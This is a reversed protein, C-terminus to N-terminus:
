YGSRRWYKAFVFVTMMAGPVVFWWKWNEAIGGAAVYGCVVLPTRGRLDHRGHINRDGVLLSRDAVFFAEMSRGARKTYFLGAGLAVMLWAVILIADLPHLTPM